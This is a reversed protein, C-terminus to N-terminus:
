IGYKTKKYLNLLELQKELNYIKEDIKRVQYSNYMTSADLSTKEGAIAFNKSTQYLRKYLKEDKKALEIKKDILKIKELVLNYELKAEKKKEILTTQAKLYNVRQSEIDTFMNINIPMSVTFGYTNYREKLSSNGGGFLPNIDGNTYTGQVSITPLYKAWTMKLNYNKEEVRLKDRKIELNGLRYDKPAILKFKPLKIKKPDKNSLVKFQQNLSALATQTELYNTQYQNAQLIAQDLFSSDIIGAEYSDKKQLIDIQANKILLLLKEQELKSKKINLLLSIANAIMEKKSIDIQTKNANRLAEAYKIAFYIGGSKFIPQDITVRFTDMIIPDNGFQESFNKNYSVVIPSIWSKSLKDTEKENSKYEYDFLIKKNDSLIDALRDANLNLTLILLALLKKM